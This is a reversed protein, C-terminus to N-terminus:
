FFNQLSFLNQNKPNFGNKHSWCFEILVEFQAGFDNVKKILSDDFFLLHKKHEQKTTYLKMTWM